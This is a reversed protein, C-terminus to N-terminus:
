DESELLEPNEYINGIVEMKETNKPIFNYITGYNVPFTNKTFHFRNMQFGIHNDCCDNDHWYVECVLGKHYEKEAPYRLLDGEYILKGNKDKLGTCQLITLSKFREYFDLDGCASETVIEIIEGNLYTLRRIYRMGEFSRHYVRFKFRDNM